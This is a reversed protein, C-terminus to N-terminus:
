YESRNILYSNNNKQWNAALHIMRSYNLTGEKIGHTKLYSNYIRDRLLPLLEPYKQLKEYISHLDTRIEEDMTEVFARYRERNAKRCASLLYRFYGMWGSYQLYENKSNICSLFAIFNCSSEKTVGYGHTMEHSMTFPQTIPHLGKDIHGESVFPLYVGATSWILLSGEPVISRVRVRGLPKYGCVTLISRLAIRCQNELNAPIKELNDLNKRLDMMYLHADEIECFLWDEEIKISQFNNRKEFSVRKYNYAWFWYFLIITVAFVYICDGILKSLLVRNEYGTKFRQKLKLTYKIVNYILFAILLYILPFPLFGISYDFTMRVIVFLINSYYYEVFISDYPLIWYILLSFSAAVITGNKLNM